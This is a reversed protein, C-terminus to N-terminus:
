GESKMILKNPLKEFFARFLGDILKEFDDMLDPCHRLFRRRKGTSKQLYFISLVNSKIEIDHRVVNARVLFWDKLGELSEQLQRLSLSEEEEQGLQELQNNTEVVFNCFSSTNESIIKSVRKLIKWKRRFNTASLRSRKANLKDVCEQIWDETINFVADSFNSTKVKLSKIYEFYSKPVRETAM